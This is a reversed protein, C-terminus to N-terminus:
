AAEEDSKHDPLARTLLSRLTEELVGAGFYSRFANDFVDFDEPRSVLTSRATFYLDEPTRLPAVEAARCFTIIRGTGM